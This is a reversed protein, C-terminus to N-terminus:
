LKNGSRCDQHTAKSASVRDFANLVDIDTKQLYESVENAYGFALRLLQIEFVIELQM